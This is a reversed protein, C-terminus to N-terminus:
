CLFNFLSISNAISSTLKCNKNLAVPVAYDFLGNSLKQPVYVSAQVQLDLHCQKVSVSVSWFGAATSSPAQPIHSKSGRICFTCRLSVQKKIGKKGPKSTRKRLPRPTLHDELPCTNFIYSEKEAEVTVGWKSLIADPTEDSSLYFFM